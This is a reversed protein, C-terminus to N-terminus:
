SEDLPFGNTEKMEQNSLPKDLLLSKVQRFPSCDMWKELHPLYKEKSRVMFGPVQAM